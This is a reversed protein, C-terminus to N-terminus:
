AQAKDCAFPYTNSIAEETSIGVTGCVKALESVTFESVGRRKKSFTVDSMEMIKNAFDSQSMNKRRLWAAIAEDLSAMYFEGTPIERPM